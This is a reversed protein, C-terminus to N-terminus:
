TSNLILDLWFDMIQFIEFKVALSKRTQEKRFLLLQM